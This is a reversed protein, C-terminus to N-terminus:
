AQRLPLCRTVRAGSSNWTNARQKRAEVEKGLTRRRAWRGRRTRRRQWRIRWVRREQTGVRAAVTGAAVETSVAVVVRL